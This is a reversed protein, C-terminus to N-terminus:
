LAIVSQKLWLLADRSLCYGSRLGPGCQVILGADKLVRLHESVTSQALEVHRTLDMCNADGAEALTRVLDLRVPHGLARMMTALRDTDLASIVM